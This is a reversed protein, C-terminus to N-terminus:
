DLFAITRVELSLRPAADPRTHPDDFATHATLHPRSQDSDFLRIALVEDPQMDPYWYWRQNPNHAVNYGAYAGPGEGPRTGIRMPILDERSVTSADCVALPKREVPRLPRWLNINIFRRQLLAEADGPRNDRVYRRLSPEDYDVHANGAPKRIGEMPEESRLNDRFVMVDRAGTLERIITAAEPYYRSRVAGADMLDVDTPRRLVTFGNAEFSLADAMARADHIRVTREYLSFTSTGHNFSHLLQGASAPDTFRIVADVHRERVATESMSM